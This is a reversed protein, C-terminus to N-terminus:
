LSPEGAAARSLWGFRGAIPTLAARWRWAGIGALVVLIAIYTAPLTAIEVVMEATTVVHLHQFPSTAALFHSFPGALLWTTLTGAALLLACLLKRSMM